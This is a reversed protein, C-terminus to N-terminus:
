HLGRHEIGGSRMNCHKELLSELIKQSVKIQTRGLRAPLISHRLRDDNLGVLTFINISHHSTVLLSTTSTELLTSHVPLFQFGRHYQAMAAHLCSSLPKASLCKRLFTEPTTSNFSPCILKCTPLTFIPSHDSAFSHPPPHRIRDPIRVQDVVYLAGQVHIKCKRM